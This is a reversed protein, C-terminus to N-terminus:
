RRARVKTRVERAYWVWSAVWGLGFVISAWWPWGLAWVGALALGANVTLLMAAAFGWWGPLLAARGLRHWREVSPDSVELMITPGYRDWKLFALRGSRTRTLRVLAVSILGECFIWVLWNATCVALAPLLILAIPWVGETVLIPVTASAGTFLVLLAPALTLNGLAWLTYQLPRM